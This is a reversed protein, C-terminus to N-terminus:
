RLSKLGGVAAAKAISAAVNDSRLRGTALPQLRLRVSFYFALSVALFTWPPCLWSREISQLFWPSAHIVGPIACDGFM